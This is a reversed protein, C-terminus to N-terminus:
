DECDTPELSQRLTKLGYHVWSKVTGAKAGMVEAIEDYTLEQRFKLIIASRHDDRLKDVATWIEVSSMRDLVSLEPSDIEQGSLEDFDSSITEVRAGRRRFEDRVLNLAVTYLWTKFSATARYSAAAQFVRIFTSQAIDAATERDGLSRFVFDLLKGHYRSVLEDMARRDGRGCRAVLEEDPMQSV